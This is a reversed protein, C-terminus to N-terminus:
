NVDFTVGSACKHVSDWEQARGRSSNREGKTILNGREGLDKVNAYM